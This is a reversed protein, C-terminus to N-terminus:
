SVARLLRAITDDFLATLSGAQDDGGVTFPLVVQALHAREAIWESARPSQYAARVVMKAPHQKLTDLVESM